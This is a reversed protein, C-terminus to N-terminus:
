LKTTRVEKVAAEEQTAPDDPTWTSWRGYEASYRNAYAICLLSHAITLVVAAAFGDM